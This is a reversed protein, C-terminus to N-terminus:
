LSWAVTWANSFNFGSGSCTNAPDRYWLQYNAIVGAGYSSQGFGAGQFDSFTTAGNVTVQIQSRATQGSTCLLGDGMPLGEGGGLQDIGRLILGPKAGPVGQVQFGFSDSTISASGIATLSAGSGGSNLCGEGAGASDGGCPCGAGSGDGHCYANGRNDLSQLDFVYVSGSSSGHDDDGPAGVVIVGGDCGLGAGFHDASAIDAGQIKAVQAGTTADFVYAAGSNEGPSGHFWAGLIATSGNLAATFGLSDGVGGDSAQLKSLQSGTALDFLYGAGSAQALGNANVASILATTDSLAVAYGFAAWQAADNATLKYIMQGTTTDFLYASGSSAAGANNDDYAGILALDNRVAVSSGFRDGAHGDEALLKFTMAGSAVDFVYTSGSTYGNDGDFPSGVVATTGDIGIAAGFHDARDGDPPVLKGIRDGTSADYLTVGGAAVGGNEEWYDGVLVTGGSIAVARSYQYHGAPGGPLLKKIVAGTAVDILYASGASGDNIAGIVAVQGDVALTGGFWDYESGDPALIKRTETQSQSLAPSPALSLALLVLLAVLPSHQM